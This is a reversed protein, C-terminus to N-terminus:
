AGEAAGRARRDTRGDPQVVRRTRRDRRRPRARAGRPRGGRPRAAERLRMVPRVLGREVFLAAVVACGLALLSFLLYRNQQRRAPEYLVASPVGVVAVCDTAGARALGYVRHIGDYPSEVEVVGVRQEGFAAFLPSSDATPDVAAETAPRRYLLRNEADFIAIVAREPLRIDRFIESVAAGDVRAVVAGGGRAPAAFAFVPREESTTRDTVVMWDNRRRTESLLHEILAAPPPERGAPHAALVEGAPGFTHLDIWHPRTAVIFRLNDAFAPPVERGREEIMASLTTLPQRQADAWREFAVAALEAQQRISDDLQRRSADWTGRLAVVGVLALPVAVGVTLLLLRGRIGM